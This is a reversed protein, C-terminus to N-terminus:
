GASSPAMASIELRFRATRPLLRVVLGVDGLPPLQASQQCPPFIVNAMTQKERVVAQVVKTELLSDFSMSRRAGSTVRTQLKSSSVMYGYLTTGQRALIPSDVAQSM